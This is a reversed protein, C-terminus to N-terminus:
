LLSQAITSPKMPGIENSFGARKFEEEIHGPANLVVSELGERHRLKRLIEGTDLGVVCAILRWASSLIRQVQVKARRHRTM